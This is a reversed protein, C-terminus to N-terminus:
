IRSLSLSLSFAIFQSFRRVPRKLSNERKGMRRPSFCIMYRPIISLQNQLAMSHPHQRKLWADLFNVRALTRLLPATPPHHDMGSALGVILRRKEEKAEEGGCKARAGGNQWPNYRRLGGKEEKVTGEPLLRPQKQRRSQHHHLGRRGDRISLSLQPTRTGTGPKTYLHWTHPQRRLNIAAYRARSGGM